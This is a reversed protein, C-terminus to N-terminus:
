ISTEIIEFLVFKDFSGFDEIHGVDFYRWEFSERSSDKFYVQVDCDEDWEQLEKILEGCKM